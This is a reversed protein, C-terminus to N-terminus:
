REGEEIEFKWSSAGKKDGEEKVMLLPWVRAPFVVGVAANEM